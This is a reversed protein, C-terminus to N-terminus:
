MSIELFRKRWDELGVAISSRHALLVRVEASEPCFWVGGGTFGLHGYWLGSRGRTEAPRRRWGLAYAGRGELATGVAASTLVRSPEVWEAALRWVARASGFLGAHAAFSLFRANGDQVTGISPARRVPIEIGQAAALERERGNGLHCAVVSDRHSPQQALRDIGLPRAVYERVMTALSLGRAREAIWGWLIYGLDSYTSPAAGHLAPDSVLWRVADEEDAGHAFLPAWPQFGSRHRLLSGLSKRALCPAVRTEHGALARSVSRRLPLVGEADLAQAVTAIVPKTLSALDFLSSTTVRGGGARRKAGCAGECAISRGDGIVAAAATVTGSALLDELYRKLDLRGM